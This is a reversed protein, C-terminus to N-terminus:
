EGKREARQELYNFVKYLRDITPTNTSIWEWLEGNCEADEMLSLEAYQDFDPRISSVFAAVLCGIQNHDWTEIGGWEDPDPSYFSSFGDRSTFMDRATEAFLDEPVAEYLRKAETESVTCFIRDTTFNYFRPSEMSDFTLDIEFERAFQEAYEKAYDQMVLRWSCDWQARDILGTYPHCGTSRDSFMQEVARDLADEHLTCYFGSFPITTIM